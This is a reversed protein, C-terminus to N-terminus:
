FPFPKFFKRYIFEHNPGNSPRFRVCKLNKKLDEQSPEARLPFIVKFFDNSNKEPNIEKTLDDKRYTTMRVINTVFFGKSPEKFLENAFAWFVSIVSFANSRLWEYNPFIKIEGTHDSITDVFPSPLIKPDSNSYVSASNNLIRAQISYLTAETLNFPTYLNSRIFETSYHLASEITKYIKERRTIADIDQTSDTRRRDEMILEFYNQIIYDVAGLYNGTNMTSFDKLRQIKQLTELLSDLNEKNIPVRNLNRVIIVLDSESPNM